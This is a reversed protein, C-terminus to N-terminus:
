GPPVTGPLPTSHFTLVNSYSCSDVDTGSVRRNGEISDSSKIMAGTEDQLIPSSHGKDLCFVEDEEESAEAQFTLERNSMKERAQCEFTDLVQPEGQHAPLGTTNYVLSQGNIETFEQSANESNRGYPPTQKPQAESMNM